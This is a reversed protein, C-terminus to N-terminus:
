RGVTFRGGLPGLGVELSVSPGNHRRSSPPLPPRVVPGHHHSPPSFHGPPTHLSPPYGLRSEHSRHSPHPPPPSLAHGHSGPRGHAGSMGHSFPPSPRHPKPPQRLASEHSRHTLHANCLYLPLVLLFATFAFHLKAM